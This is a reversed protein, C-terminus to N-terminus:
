EATSAAVLIQNFVDRGIHEHKRAHIEEPANWYDGKEYTKKNFIYTKSNGIASILMGSQYQQVHALEHALTKLMEIASGYHHMNIYIEDFIAYAMRNCEHDHYLNITLFSWDITRYEHRKKFFPIALNIFRKATDVDASKKNTNVVLQFMFKRMEM